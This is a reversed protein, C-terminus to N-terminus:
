RDVIHFILPMSCTILVFLVNLTYTSLFLAYLMSKVFRSKLQFNYCGADTEGVDNTLEVQRKHWPLLLEWLPIIICSTMPENIRIQFYPSRQANPSAYFMPCGATPWTM